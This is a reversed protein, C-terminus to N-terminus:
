YHLGRESISSVVLHNIENLTRRAAVAVAVVAALLMQSMQNRQLEAAVLAAQRQRYLNRCNQVSQALM